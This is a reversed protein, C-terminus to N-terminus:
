TKDTGIIDVTNQICVFPRKYRHSSVGGNKYKRLRKNFRTCHVGKKFKCDNTCTLKVFTRDDRTYSGLASGAALKKM